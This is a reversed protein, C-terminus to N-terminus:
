NNRVAAPIGRCTANLSLATRAWRQSAALSERRMEPDQDHAARRLHAQSLGAALAANHRDWAFTAEAIPIAEALLNVASPRLPDKLALQDAIMAAELRQRGAVDSIADRGLAAIALLSVALLLIRGFSGFYPWAFARPSTPNPVSSVCLGAVVCALFANAPLYMNWDFASHSAFGVLGAWPGANLIRYDGGADAVFRKWRSWGVSALRVVWAAGALGTEALIQAYDNHAFYLNTHGSQFRPFIQEFSTLGTGLVPSARFMRVAIQAALARGDSLVVAVTKQYAAPVLPMVWHWGGLMIILLSAIGCASAAALWGTARRWTPHVATLFCLTFGALVLTATGARSQAMIGVVWLALGFMGGLVSQRLWQAVKGRTLWLWLAATIPLTLVTGGAFHNSYRYSGFGDGVSRDEAVYRHDALTQVNPWGIGATQEAILLPNKSREMPGAIDIVGLLVQTQRASGFCLGLGLILVGSIALAHLLTARHAKYRGIDMVMALTGMSLLVRCTAAFSAGPNVSICGWATPTAEHALKWAGASVPAIAVLLRDPLPLQQVLLVAAVCLPMWTLRAAVPGSCLWCTIAGWTAAELTFRAEASSAGLALPAIICCAALLGAAVTRLLPRENMRLNAELFHGGAADRIKVAGM